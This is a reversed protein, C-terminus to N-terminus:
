RTKCAEELIKRPSGTWKGFDHLFVTSEDDTQRSQPEMSAGYGEAEEFISGFVEGDDEHDMVDSVTPLDDPGKSISPDDQRLLRRESIPMSKRLEIERSRWLEVAEDRDFLVDHEIKSLKSQLRKQLAVLSADIDPLNRELDFIKFKMELYRETLQDPDMEDESDEYLGGQVNTADVTRSRDSRSLRGTAEDAPCREPISLCVSLNTLENCLSLNRRRM